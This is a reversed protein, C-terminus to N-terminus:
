GYDSFLITWLITCFFFTYRQCHDKSSNLGNQTIPGVILIHSICKCKIYGPQLVTFWPKTLFIYMQNYYSVFFFTFRVIHRQDLCNM